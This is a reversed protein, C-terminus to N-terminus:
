AAKMRLASLGDRLMDAVSKSTDIRQIASEIENPKYGMYKLGSRVTDLEDPEVPAPKAAPALAPQVVIPPPIVPASQLVVHFTKPTVVRPAPRILQPRRRRTKWMAVGVQWLASALGSVFLGTVLLATVLLSIGTHGFLFLIGRYIGHGVAGGDRSSAVFMAALGLLIGALPHNRKMNSMM